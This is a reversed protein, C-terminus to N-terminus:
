GPWDSAVLHSPQTRAGNALKWLTEDPEFSVSAGSASGLRDNWQSIAIIRNNSQRRGDEGDERVEVMGLVKCPLVVGPNTSAAHLVLADVPDGDAARTGPIFGWDYAPDYTLKVTSGKPAEVVVHLAKGAGYPSLDILSTTM